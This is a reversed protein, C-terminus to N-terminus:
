GNLLEGDDERVTYMDRFARCRGELAAHCISAWKWFLAGNAVQRDVTSLDPEEPCFNQSIESKARISINDDRVHCPRGCKHCPVSRPPAHQSTWYGAMPGMLMLMKESHGVEIQDATYETRTRVPKPKGDGDPVLMTCERDHCTVYMRTKVDREYMETDFILRLKDPLIENMAYIASRAIRPEGSNMASILQQRCATIGSNVDATASQPM